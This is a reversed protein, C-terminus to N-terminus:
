STSLLRQRCGCDKLQEELEAVRARLAMVASGSLIANPHWFDIFSTRLFAKTAQSPFDNPDSSAYLAVSSDASFTNPTNSLPLFPM